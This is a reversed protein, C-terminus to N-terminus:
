SPAAGSEIALAEGGRRSILLGAMRGFDFGGIAGLGIPAASLGAIGCPGGGMDLVDRGGTRIGKRAKRGHLVEHAGKYSM